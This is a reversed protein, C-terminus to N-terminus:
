RTLLKGYLVQKTGKELVGRKAGPPKWEMADPLYKLRLSNWLSLRHWAPKRQLRQDDGLYPNPFLVTLMQAGQGNWMRFGWSGPIHSGGFQRFFAARAVRRRRALDKPVPHLKSGKHVGICLHFHWPGTDITLYGDLMSLKPPSKALRIEYVAGDICIGFIIEEWHKEFLQRLLPLLVEEHPDVYEYQIQTGDVEKILEARYTAVAM